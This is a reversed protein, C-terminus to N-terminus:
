TVTVHKEMSGLSSQVDEKLPTICPLPSGCMLGLSIGTLLCLRGEGQCM